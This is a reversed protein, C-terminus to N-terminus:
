GLGLLQGRKSYASIPATAHFGLLTPVHTPSLVEWMMGANPLNQLIPMLGACSYPMSQEVRMPPYSHDQRATITIIVSLLDTM